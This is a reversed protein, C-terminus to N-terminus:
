FRQKERKRLLHFLRNFANKVAAAVLRFLNARPEKGDQQVQPLGQRRGTQPKYEEPDALSVGAIEPRAAGRDQDRGGLILTPLPLRQRPASIPHGLRVRVEHRRGDDTLPVNPVPLPRGDLSVSQVGHEVGEPNEVVIHYHAQGHRVTVDYGPWDSPICPAITLVDGRRAVGLLAELGVRAMWAASGTYWTWGGRGTHPPVSYVDAAVIYPEVRYRDISEATAGHLIPNLVRFLAAARDGQRLEALAWVAWQAAHTYQGGNERIGPVYGKIYGPDRPTRDFPPSFLLVLRDDPRVLRQEVAEMARAARDPEAAGSLVAWSQPLSDIQCERNRASGLPWGDDYFARLYWDGDWASAELAARLREARQRYAAAQADEGIRDLVAAFSTLTAHLFWGLWVSEGRGDVGVRNLGDNWDGSGILPLGHSGATTGRELARRCHELLPYAEVTPPYYGYREDQGPELLPGQLFPVRESLIALDGTAAIYHATAFPLWLLDDSCRSRIGRGSPPHWWHLVDGAEFQHRAARLIHDRALEPAAPLVALIDQLQDRFGYAGSSQYLATRGWLRCSLTQYLLWRNLLLDFAPEPTRVTVAGLLHDWSATTAQWAAEVAAPDQYHRLIQLAEDRDRGQGLFFCVEASEGPELSFHVQVAACPDLGPAVTGAPGVRALAAPSALSGYRGLFEARDTTLGHLPRNAGLFALSEGFEPSYPNSALLANGSSEYDPLIFPQTDDRTVGLVWEAYYTATIRRPRSWSNEVRLRAIKVPDSVPVFLLLEQRLGHSHHEFCTYGAGHRVVTPAPAGAPLPTPSWVLGTEEDRLYLAEGSRDAVPDNSWPTLRNEGSNEAWTCVSGAESVLFGARPNAVVNIWPAPTPQGLELAIVYERGDPTFGGLGNDFVLGAPRPLPPTPEPDAEGPLTPVFAPLRTPPDRFRALHEAVSGRSGDFVARAATALLIQDADSVQEQASLVFIGGRRGLWAEGGTSVIARHIQDHLERLYSADHRNLIVLDVLLQRDRWYAHAQLLERVLPLHDEVDVRVLVIPYDGSIAYPWLGPQGKTNAALTAPDARLVASPYLLTSYLQEVRALTPTDLGLSRLERDAETHAREVARDISGPTRYRRVLDLLESRSDAAATFFVLHVSGYPELELLQSLAFVPDLTAGATGSLHPQGGALAAPDRTTRGRGLFRARDTEYQAAPATGTALGLWHALHSCEGEDASRPRRRFLLAGLDAVYESEIFLKNFASHRRDAAQSGLVVEGYSTIWLRRQEASHNTLTVRRAEVDDDPLVIVELTVTLSGDGLPRRFEAKHPYFLVEQAAATMGVPQVTASWLPGGPEQVYLWTGWDDLTTDARWRSLDFDRWRSYGGGGSTVLVAYRGNSLHHVEPLPGDAPVRWPEIAPVPRLPLQARGEDSSPHQIPAQDASPVREQLLLEVTQIRPDGHLREVSGRTTLYNALTVLIMGQHHAMYSQVRGLKQGLALRSRTFDVAEYFGFRGLMELERLHDLNDLVAEPALPLALLSAYPTVVLDDALGRKFGLAPAGFARYQYNQNADFLYFGSESIGWPVGRQRGYAVQYRAAGRASEALLTGPYDRVFLRPMLYEFM